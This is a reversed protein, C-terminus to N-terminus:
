RRAVIQPQHAMSLAMSAWATGATSIWQDHGYPFGSEFYPQFWIARTKVHWSGDDAQTRRLYAVGKSFVADYKAAQGAVALAYLAQGTAYADSGMSPLQSWGGDGRQTVALAKASQEISAASAKAWALGMLHFARDQTSAPKTQELWAAARAVAKKTDEREAEPPYHILGYIALAATQYEGSNMPPRRGNPARWNGKPTQMAKIFRVVADTYENRPTRNMGFDFLEWASSTVNIVNFDMVRDPSTGRQAESLQPVQVAATVGRDRAVAAAASPLDQNHCSNCGGIRIFNHSQKELLATALEVAEPISRTRDSALHPEVVGGQEREEEAKAERLFRQKAEQDNLLHAALFKLAVTRELKTDEAKYVVGM